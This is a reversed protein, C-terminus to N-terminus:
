HWHSLSVGSQSRFPGKRDAVFSDGAGASEGGGVVSPSRRGEEGGGGGRRQRRGRRGCGAWERVGMAGGVACWCRGSGCGCGGGCCVVRSISGSRRGCNGKWQGGRARAGDTPTSRTRRCTTWRWAYWFVCPPGLVTLVILLPLIFPQGNNTANNTTTTPPPSPSQALTSTSHTLLLRFVFTLVSVRRM